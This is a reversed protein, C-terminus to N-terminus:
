RGLYEYYEAASAVPVELTRAKLWDPWQEESSRETTTETFLVFDADLGLEFRPDSGIERLRNAADRASMRLRVTPKDTMGTFCVVVPRQTSFFPNVIHDGDIVPSTTEYHKVIAVEATDLWVKKVEVLAKYEFKGGRGVRAVKFLLGPVVRERSGINIFAIRREVDPRLIRGHSVDVDHRIVEKVRMEDLRRRLDKIKNNERIEWQIFSAQEDTMANVAEDRKGTLEGLLARYAAEEAGIKQQLDGIMAQLRTKYQEKPRLIEPKAAVRSDAHSKQIDAELRAQDHYQILLTLKAAQHLLLAELTEFRGSEERAKVIRENVERLTPNLDPEALIASRRKQIEQGGRTTDLNALDEFPFGTPRIDAQIRQKLDGEREEERTVQDNVRNRRFELDSMRAFLLISSFVLTITAVVLIVVVVM